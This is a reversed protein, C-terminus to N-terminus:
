RVLMVKVTLGPMVAVRTRSQSATAAAACLAAHWDVHSACPWSPRPGPSQLDFAQNASVDNHM